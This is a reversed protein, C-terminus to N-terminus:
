RGAAAEAQLLHAISVTPPLRGEIEKRLVELRMQGTRLEREAMAAAGARLRLAEGQTVVLAANPVPKAASTYGPTSTLSVLTTRRWLRAALVTPILSLPTLVRLPWTRLLTPHTLHTLLILSSLLVFLLTPDPLTNLTKSLTQLLPPKPKQEPPPTPTTPALPELPTPPAETPPRQWAIDSPKEITAM